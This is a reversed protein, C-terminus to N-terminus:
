REENPQDTVDDPMTSAGAPPGQGQAILQDVRDGQTLAIWWLVGFVLAIVAMPPLLVASLLTLVLLIWGVTVGYRTRLLGSALVCLVALVIGGILYATARGAPDDDAIAFQRAVLAGLFVSLGLGILTTALLRRTMRGPVGTLPLARSM